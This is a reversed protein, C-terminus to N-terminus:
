GGLKDMFGNIFLPSGPKVIRQFHTGEIPGGGYSIGYMNRPTKGLSSKVLPYAITLVVLVGRNRKGRGKAPRVTTPRIAQVVEGELPLTVTM